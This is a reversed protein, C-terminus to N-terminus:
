PNPTIGLSLLIVIVLDLLIVARQDSGSTLADTAPKVGVDDSSSDQM